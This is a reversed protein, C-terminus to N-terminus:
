PRTGADGSPPAGADRDAAGAFLAHPEVPAPASAPPALAGFSALPVRLLHWSRGFFAESCSLALPDGISAMPARVTAAAGDRLRILRVEQENRALVHGCGVAVPEHCGEAIRRPAFGERDTTTPAAFLSCRKGDVARFVLDREDAAVGSVRTARPVLTASPLEAGVLFLGQGKAAVFFAGKGLAVGPPEARRIETGSFDTVRGQWRAGYWQEAQDDGFEFAFGREDVLGRPVGHDVGSGSWLLAPTASVPGGVLVSPLQPALVQGAKGESLPLGHATVLWRGDRHALLSLSCDDPAVGMAGIATLVKGDIASVAVYGGGGTGNCPFSTAVTGRAADVRAELSVIQKCGALGLDAPCAHWSLQPLASPDPPVV